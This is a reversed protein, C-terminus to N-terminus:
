IFADEQRARKHLPSRLTSSDKESDEFRTRELIEDIVAICTKGQFLFANRISNPTEISPPLCSVDTSHKQAVRRHARFM